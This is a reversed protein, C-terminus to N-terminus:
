FYEWGICLLNINGLYLGTADFTKIQNSLEDTNSNSGVLPNPFTGDLVCPTSGQQKLWFKKKKAQHCQGVSTSSEELQCINSLLPNLRRKRVAPVKNFLTLSVPASQSQIKCKGEEFVQEKGITSSLFTHAFLFFLFVSFRTLEEKQSPVPFTYQFGLRQCM